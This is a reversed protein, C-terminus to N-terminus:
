IRVMSLTGRVTEGIDYVDARSFPKSGQTPIKGTEKGLSRNVSIMAPPLKGDHFLDPFPAGGM